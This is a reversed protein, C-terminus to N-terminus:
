TDYVEKTKRFFFESGKGKKTVSTMPIDLEAALLEAVRPYDFGGQCRGTGLWTRRKISDYTRAPIIGRIADVIEGETVEECRCIIRGYLPNKKILAKREDHTLEKFRVPAKRVPNYTSKKTLKLGNDRLMELVREAIAPASALGPSDIAGLNVLGQVEDPIEIIFDKEDNNGKARLGAFSAIVDRMNLTPVLKLANHTIEELGDHTTELDERDNIIEANPGIMVNGHTTTTVLTGKGKASPVPYLVTDIRVQSCDFIFYEGRRPIVKFESRVGAKHMVDDSYLGACNIVWNSHFQGKDTTIGVIKKKDFIFDEFTTERLLTVGNSVANECAALTAEFPDIVGTSPLSLAAKVDPTILPESALIEDRNLIVADKVGNIIAREYLGELLTYEDDGVAVVYAGSRRFPINLEDAIVPWLTNGRLNLMAKLTGPKPDHGSHIIASNKSSTSMGIDNEKEIILVKLTYGSLFRAIMSGIIGAGIIIVDYKEQM